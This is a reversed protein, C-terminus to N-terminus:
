RRGRRRGRRTIIVAVAIIIIIIVVVVVVVVAIVLVRGLERAEHVERGFESVLDPAGHDRRAADVEEVHVAEGVVVHGAAAAGRRGPRVEVEAAQGDVVGVGGDGAVVGRGPLRPGGHALGAALGAVDAGDGAVLGGVDGERTRAPPEEHAGGVALQPGRGQADGDVVPIPIPIPISSRVPVSFPILLVVRRRRRGDVRFGDDTADDLYM